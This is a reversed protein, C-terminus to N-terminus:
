IGNTDGAVLDANPASFAAFNGDHSLSFPGNTGVVHTTSAQLDRVYLNGPFASTLDLDDGPYFFLVRHGDGSIAVDRDASGMGVSGDSKVSVRTTTGAQRDRVFIDAFATSTHPPSALNTAVSWFAVLRGDDSIAAADSINDGQSADSAVSVRETAGTSFDHVFVDGVGNTDGAVLNTANSGFAVFRGDPTVAFSGRNTSANDNGPTGDSAVDAALLHRTMRDRLYVHDTMRVAPTGLGSINALTFAVWRGDPTIEVALNSGLGANQSDPPPDERETLDAHVSTSLLLSILLTSVAHM